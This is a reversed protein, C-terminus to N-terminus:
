GVAVHNKAMDRDFQTSLHGWRKGANVRSVASQHIDLMAAISKQAMGGAVLSRILHVKEDTLKSQSHREGKSSNLGAAFAHRMNESPTCYELNAWANDTKIGSKHNISMGKPRPGSFARMVLSHITIHRVGGDRYLAVRLYGGRMPLPKLLGPLGSGGFDMSM